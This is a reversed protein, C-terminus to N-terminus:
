IDIVGSGFGLYDFANVPNSHRFVAVAQNNNGFVAFASKDVTIRCLSDNRELIVRRPRERVTDGSYALTIRYVEYIMRALRYVVTFKCPLASIVAVDIMSIIGSNWYVSLIPKKVSITFPCELRFMFINMDSGLIHPVCHIVIFPTDDTCISLKYNRHLILIYKDM